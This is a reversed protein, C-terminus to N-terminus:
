STKGKETQVVGPRKTLEAGVESATRAQAGRKAPGITGGLDYEAMTSLFPDEEDLAYAEDVIKDWAAPDKPPLKSSKAMM